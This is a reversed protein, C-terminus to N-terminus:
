TEGQVWCIKIVKETSHFFGSNDNVVLMTALGLNNTALSIAIYQPFSVRLYVGVNKIM